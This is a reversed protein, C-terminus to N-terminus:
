HSRPAKKERGLKSALKIQSKEKKVVKQNCRQEGVSHRNIQINCQICDARHSPL